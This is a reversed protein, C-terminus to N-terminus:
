NFTNGSEQLQEQSQYIYIAQRYNNEADKLQGTEHYLEGLKCLLKAENYPRNLCQFTCLATQYCREVEKFDDQRLALTGLRESVIAKGHYNDQETNIILSHEYAQKAKTYEGIDRLVDAM